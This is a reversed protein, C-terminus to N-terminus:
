RHAARTRQGVPEEASAVQEFVRRAATVVTEAEAEVDARFKADMYAGFAVTFLLLPGIAVFVFFLFLKRYFSTRIEHLLM